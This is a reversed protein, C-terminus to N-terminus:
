TCWGPSNRAPLLYVESGFRVVLPVVTIKLAEILTAPLDCSSDTVIRVPLLSM